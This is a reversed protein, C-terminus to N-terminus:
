KKDQRGEWRDMVENTVIFKFGRRVGAHWSVTVYTNGEAENRHFMLKAEPLPVRKFTDIDMM